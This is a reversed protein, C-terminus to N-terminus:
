EDPDPASVRAAGLGAPRNGTTVARFPRAAADPATAAPSHTSPSPVLQGGNVNNSMGGLYSAYLLGAVGATVSRLVFCWTRILAVDVGARRAAEANGGIASVFRGFRTRQLLLTWAGLVALVVFIAWGGNL